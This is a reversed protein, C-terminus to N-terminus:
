GAHNLAGDAGISGTLNLTCPSTVKFYLEQGLGLGAGKGRGTRERGKEGEM